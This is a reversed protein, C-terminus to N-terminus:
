LHKEQDSSLSHIHVRPLIADRCDHECVNVGKQDLFDDTIASIDLTETHKDKHTSEDPSRMLKRILKGKREM